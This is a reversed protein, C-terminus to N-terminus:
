RHRTAALLTHNSINNVTAKCVSTMESGVTLLAVIDATRFLVTSFPEVFNYGFTNWTLCHFFLPSIRLPFKKIIKELGVEHLVVTYGLFLPLPVTPLPLQYPVHSCSWCDVRRTTHRFIDSSIPLLNVTVSVPFCGSM